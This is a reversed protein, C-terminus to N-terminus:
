HGPLQSVLHLAVQTLSPHIPQCEACEVGILDAEGAALAIGVNLAALGDHGRGDEPDCGDGLQEGCGEDELHGAVTQDIKIGREVELQWRNEADRVDIARGRGRWEVAQERM